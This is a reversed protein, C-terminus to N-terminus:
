EKSGALLVTTVERDAQTVIWVRVGSNLIYSSLIPLNGDVAVANYAKLEDDIEGWEGTLHQALLEMFDQEAEDLAAMAELTTRVWGGEFLPKPIRSEDAPRTEGLFEPLQELMTPILFM